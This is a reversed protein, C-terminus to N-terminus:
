PKFLCKNAVIKLFPNLALLLSAVTNTNKLHLKFLDKIKPFM